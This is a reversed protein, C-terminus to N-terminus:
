KKLMGGIISKAAQGLIAKGLGNGQTPAKAAGGKLALIIDNIDVDGDGDMDKIFKSLNGLVAPITGALAGSTASDLSKGAGQSFIKTALSAIDTISTSSSAVKAGLVQNLIEAGGAKAATQTLSGLVSEALGGLAQNKVNAPINVNKSAAQVSQMIIDNINLAM